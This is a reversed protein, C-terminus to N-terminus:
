SNRETPDFDGLRFRIALVHRVATDVDSEDLLSRDLATTLREITPGPQEGDETSSDIGALLAAAYGYPYETYYGQANAPNSVAGADSVGARRRKDLRAAGRQYPSQPAGAKRKRPQVLGDPRRRRRGRDARPVRAARIVT